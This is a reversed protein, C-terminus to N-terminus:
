VNENLFDSSQPIFNYKERRMDIHLWDLMNIFESLFKGIRDNYSKTCQLYSKSVLEIRVNNKFGTRLATSVGGAMWTGTEAFNTVENQAFFSVYTPKSM